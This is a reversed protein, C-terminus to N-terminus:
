ENHGKPFLVEFLNSKGVNFKGVMWNGGGRDYIAEKIEKTWWGRKASVLHVNGLRMDQGRRGLADRIVSIFYPMLTDVMEKQPALLDSRTIIFSVTTRASFDHQSRRNQSRPRALELRNFISPILSMPFDAADLVHYVHNRRYPSEEITDAISDITPHAIPVGKSQHLLYHCRNCFPIGQQVLDKSPEPGDNPGATASLLSLEQQQVGDEDPRSVEVSGQAGEDEPGSNQRKVRRIYDKVSRRTATYFGAEDRDVEQTLGGCGPCSLPLHRPPGQQIETSTKSSRHSSEWKSLLNESSKGISISDHHPVPSSQLNLNRKQTRADHNRGALVEAAKRRPPLEATVLQRRVERQFRLITQPSLRM